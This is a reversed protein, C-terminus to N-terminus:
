SRHDAYRNEAFAIWHPKIELHREDMSQKLLSLEPMM